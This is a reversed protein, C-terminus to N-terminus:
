SDSSSPNSIQVEFSSAQLRVRFDVFTLLSAPNGHAVSRVYTDLTSPDFISKQNGALM